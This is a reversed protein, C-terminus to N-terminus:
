AVEEGAHYQKTLALAAAKAQPLTGHTSVIEWVDTERVRRAVAPALEDRKRSWMLDGDNRDLVVVDNHLNVWVATRRHVQGFASVKPKLHGREADIVEDMKDNGSVVGYYNRDEYRVEGRQAMKVGYEFVRKLTWDLEGDKPPTVVTVNEACKVMKAEMKRLTSGFITAEDVVTYHEPYQKIAKRSNAEDAVAKAQEEAFLGRIYVQQIAPTHWDLHRIVAYSM